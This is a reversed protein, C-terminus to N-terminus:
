LLVYDTQLLVDAKIRKISGVYQMMSNLLRSFMQLFKLQSSNFFMLCSCIIVFHQVNFVAPPKRMNFLRTMNCITHVNDHYHFGHSGNSTVILDWKM